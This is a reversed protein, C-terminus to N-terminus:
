SWEYASYVYAIEKRGAQPEVLHDLETSRGHQPTEWWAILSRVGAGCRILAKEIEGM